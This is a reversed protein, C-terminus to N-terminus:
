LVISGYFFARRSLLGVGKGPVIDPVACSVM